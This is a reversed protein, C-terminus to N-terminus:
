AEIRLLDFVDDDHSLPGTQREFSVPPRSFAALRSGAERNTVPIRDHSAVQALEDLLRSSLLTIM